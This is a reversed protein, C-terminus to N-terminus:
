MFARRRCISYLTRRVNDIGDVTVICYFLLSVVLLLPPMAVLNKKKCVSLIGSQTVLNSNVIDQLLTSHITMVQQAVLSLFLALAFHPLGIFYHFYKCHGACSPSRRISLFFWAIVCLTHVGSAPITIIM